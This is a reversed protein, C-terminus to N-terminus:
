MYAWSNHFVDVCNSARIYCAHAQLSILWPNGVPGRYSCRSHPLRVVAAFSKTSRRWVVICHRIRWSIRLFDKTLWFFQWGFETKNLLEMWIKVWAARAIGEITEVLNNTWGRPDWEWHCHGCKDGFRIDCYQELGCHDDNFCECHKSNRQFQFFSCKKM